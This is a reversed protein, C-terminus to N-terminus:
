ELTASFRHRGQGSAVFYYYDHHKPQLVAQLSSVGPNGIPGPPLGEIRYTNYPNDADNTMRRTIRRGDFNACAPLRTAILCGYAVTPDAQLRKPKFAPDRLRNLFVGAIIPREAAVAAEKEVISALTVVAHRDMGLEQQLRQLAPAHSAFVGGHRREGNAALRAVIQQPSLGDHLRYTDPFLYGEATDAEIGLRALLKPDAAARLFASESVLGWRELRRAIEFRNMGEPLMVRVEAHGFGSALRQLLQLVTMGRQVRVSGSRLRQQAGRALAYAQFLRPKDLLDLQALQQSLARLSTGDGLAVEVTEGAGAVAQNPFERWLWFACAGAGSLVVLGLVAAVLWARLSM